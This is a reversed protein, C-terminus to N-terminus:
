KEYFFKFSYCFARSSKQNEDINEQNKWTARLKCTIHAYYSLFIMKNRKALSIIKEISNLKDETNNEM